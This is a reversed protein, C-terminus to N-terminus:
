AEEKNEPVSEVNGFQELLPELKDYLSYGKDLLTVANHLQEKALRHAVDNYYRRFNYDANLLTELITVAM